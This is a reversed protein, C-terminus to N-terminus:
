ADVDEIVISALEDLLAAESEGAAILKALLHEKSAEEQGLCALLDNLEAEDAARADAVAAEVAARLRSDADVLAADVADPAIALDDLACEVTEIARAPDDDVGGRAALM